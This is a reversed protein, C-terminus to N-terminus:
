LGSDLNVRLKKALAIIREGINYYEHTSVISGCHSCIVANLLFRSGKVKIEKLEFSANECKPCKPTLM